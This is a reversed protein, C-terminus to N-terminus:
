RIWYVNIANIGGGVKLSSNCTETKVTSRIGWGELRLPSIPLTTSDVRTSEFFTRGGTRVPKCYSVCRTKDAAETLQKLVALAGSGFYTGVLFVFIFGIM